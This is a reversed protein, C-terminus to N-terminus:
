WNQLNQTLKKGLKEHLVNHYIVCYKIHVILFSSNVTKDAFSSWIFFILL